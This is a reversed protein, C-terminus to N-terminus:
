SLLPSYSLTISLLLSYYLTFSLLLSTLEINDTNSNHLSSNMMYFYSSRIARSLSHQTIQASNHLYVYIIRCTTMGKRHLIFSFFLGCIRSLKVSKSWMHLRENVNGNLRRSHMSFTERSFFLCCCILALFNKKQCNHNNNSGSGIRM